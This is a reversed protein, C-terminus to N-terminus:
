AAAAELELLWRKAETGGLYAGIAGDTRVVRHCPVVLPLPNTACATGVARTAGPNGITRALSSYSATAGYAIRPLQEVVARRLEGRVLCLDLPLEFRRRRGDLYEDLQRAAADLHSAAPAELVRPGLRTALVGLVADHDERAFAIRVIGAATAAILLRGVPADITRWAVDLLGGSAAEDGLRSRLRALQGTDRAVLQRLLQGGPEDDADISTTDNM